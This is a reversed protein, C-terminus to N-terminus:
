TKTDLLKAGRTSLRLTSKHGGKPGCKSGDTYCAWERRYIDKGDEIIVSYNQEWMVCTKICDTTLERIENPLSEILM